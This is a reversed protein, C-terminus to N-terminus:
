KPGTAGRTLQAGDDAVFIALLSAPETNSANESIATATRTSALLRVIGSIRATRDPVPRTVMSAISATMGVSRSAIRVRRGPNFTNRLRTWRAPCIIHALLMKSRGSAVTNARSNVAGAQVSSSATGIRPSFNVRLRMPPVAATAGTARYHEGLSALHYVVEYRPEAPLLDVATVDALFVFQLGPDDRLIKGVELLRDRDLYVTPMDSASGSELQLGAGRLADIVSVANTM